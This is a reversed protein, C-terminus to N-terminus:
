APQRPRRARRLALLALVGVAAEVRWLAPREAWQIGAHFANVRHPWLRVGLLEAPKDLDPLVGGAAGALMCLSRRRLLGAGVASVALGDAVAATWFVRRDHPDGHRDPVGWHPLADLAFHSAVGVIAAGAPSPVLSGLVGGVLAHNTAFVM